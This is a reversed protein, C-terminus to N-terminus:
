RENRSWSANEILKATSPPKPIARGNIPAHKRHHRSIKTTKLRRAESVELGGYRAKWKYFTTM